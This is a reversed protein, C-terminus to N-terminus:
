GMICLIFHLVFFILHSEWIAFGCTLIKKPAAYYTDGHIQSFSVILSSEFLCKFTSNQNYLLGRWIKTGYFVVM